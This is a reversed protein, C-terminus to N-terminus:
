FCLQGVVYNRGFLHIAVAFLKTVGQGHDTISDAYDLFPFLFDLLKYIKLIKAACLFITWSIFSMCCASDENRGSSQM